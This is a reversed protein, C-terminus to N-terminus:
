KREEKTGKDKSGTLNLIDLPNPISAYDPEERPVAYTYVKRDKKFIIYNKIVEDVSDGGVNKAIKGTGTSPFKITGIGYGIAALIVLIIIGVQKLGCASFILYFILGILGGVGTYILSKATFIYLIRSEGKLKNSPIYYSGM